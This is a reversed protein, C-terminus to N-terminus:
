NATTILLPVFARGDGVALTMNFISTPLQIWATGCSGSYNILCVCHRHRRAEGFDLLGGQLGVHETALAWWTWGFSVHM